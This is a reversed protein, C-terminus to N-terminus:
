VSLYGLLYLIVLLVIILGLAIENRKKIFAYIIAICVLIIGFLELGIKM